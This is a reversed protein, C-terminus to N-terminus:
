KNISNPNTHYGWFTFEDRMYDYNCYIGNEDSWKKVNEIIENPRAYSMDEETISPRILKTILFAKGDVRTFGFPHKLYGYEWVIPKDDNLSRRIRELIDQKSFIAYRM